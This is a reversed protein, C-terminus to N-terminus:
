EGLVFIDFGKVAITDGVAKAVSAVYQSITVDPNKVFEQDVLTNEKYFKEVRGQAMKEQIAEPKGSAAAQERYITLEHEVVEPNMDERVACLPKTAAVQMAVDHALAKFEDNQATAANGLEFEVLVGIKGGMHIYSAVAGNEVVRRAFRTLTMNEGMTAIGNAIIAEVTEGDVTAAKLAEVDAADSLAAAEAVKAVMNKFKDTGSVFDTECKIEAIAATKGDESVFAMVAGENTARGAKKLSKAIGRTRLVDVAKDMDGDAEVLAKKCEMMPSDTMERLQKVLAATIEAM